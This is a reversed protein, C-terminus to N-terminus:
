EQEPKYKALQKEIFAFAEKLTSFAWEKHSHTAMSKQHVAYGFNCKTIIFSNNMNGGLEAATRKILLL